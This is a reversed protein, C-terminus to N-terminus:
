PAIQTPERDGREPLALARTHEADVHLADTACEPESGLWLGVQGLAVRPTVTDATVLQAPELLLQAALELAVQDLPGRAQRGLARQGLEVAREGGPRDLVESGHVADDRLELAAERGLAVLECTVPAVGM